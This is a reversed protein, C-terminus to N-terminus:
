SVARTLALTEADGSSEAYRDLVERPTGSAQVKGRELWICRTCHNLIELPNHSVLLVTTGAAQFRALREHCRGVFSADGVSLVEDLVLIDPQWGTAISFGLRALMGTSYNRVPSNIFEGLGSFEIINDLEQEIKRRSHGRLLGNLFVNERGTLEADFGTGLELIPSVNGRVVLKGSSPKIIGSIVKSLTSKGAGNRGIIGVVEGPFIALDVDKLAWLDRYVLAGRLSHILFEKFSQIRQEALRYCLSVGELIIKPESM